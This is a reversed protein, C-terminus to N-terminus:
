SRSFTDDKRREPGSTGGDPTGDNSGRIRYKWWSGRVATPALVTGQPFKCQLAPDASVIPALDVLPFSQGDTKNVFALIDSAILANGPAAPYYGDISYFGGFYDATLSTSGARIGSNPVVQAMLAALGEGMVVFATTDLQPAQQASITAAPLLSM